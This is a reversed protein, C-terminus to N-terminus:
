GMGPMWLVTLAMQYHRLYRVDEFPEFDQDFSKDPFWSEPEILEMHRPNSENQFVEATLTQSPIPIDKEIFCGRVEKNRVVWQINKNRSRQLLKCARNEAKIANAKQIMEM